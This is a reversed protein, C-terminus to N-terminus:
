DAQSSKVMRQLYAADMPPCEDVDLKALVGRTEESDLAFMNHGLDFYERLVEWRLQADPSMDMRSVTELWEAVPLVKGARGPQEYIEGVFSPIQSIPLPSPNCIHYFIAGTRSSPAALESTALAHFADTLYDVPVFDAVFDDGNTPLSPVLGSQVMSLIMARIFDVEPEAVGTVVSGTAASARYITVPFGRQAAKEMLQEAAWRSKFYGFRNNNEPV